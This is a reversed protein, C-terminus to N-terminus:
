IIDDQDGVLSTLTSLNRRLQRRRMLKDQAPKPFDTFNIINKSILVDILDESIRAMDLDSRSLIERSDRPPAARGPRAMPAPAAAASAPAGDGAAPAGDETAPAGAVSSPAGAAPSPAGALAAAAGAGIARGPRAAGGRSERSIRLRESRSMARM